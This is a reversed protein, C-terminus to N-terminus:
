KALSSEVAGTQSNYHLSNQYIATLKADSTAELAGQTYSAQAQARLERNLQKPDVVMVKGQMALLGRSVDNKMELLKDHTMNGLAMFVLAMTIFGITKRKNQIKIGIM